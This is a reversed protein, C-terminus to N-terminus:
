ARMCELLLMWEADRKLLLEEAADVAESSNVKGGGTITPKGNLDVYVCQPGAPGRPYRAERQRIKSLVFEVAEERAPKM